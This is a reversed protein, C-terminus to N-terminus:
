IGEDQTYNGGPPKWASRPTRRPMTVVLTLDSFTIPSVAHQWLHELHDRITSQLQTAEKHSPLMYELTGGPIAQVSWGSV